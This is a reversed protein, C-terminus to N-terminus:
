WDQTNQRSWKLRNWYWTGRLNDKLCYWRYERKRKGSGCAVTPLKQPLITRVWRCWEDPRWKKRKFYWDNGLKNSFFELSKTVKIQANKTEESVIFLERVQKEIDRLCNVLIKPCEPINLNDSFIENSLSGTSKANEKIKNADEGNRSEDSLSLDKKKKGLFFSM